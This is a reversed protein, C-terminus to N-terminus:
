PRRYTLVEPDWESEACTALNDRMLDHITPNSVRGWLWGYADAGLDLMAVFVDRKQILTLDPRAGIWKVYGGGHRKTVRDDRAILYGLVVTGADNTVLIVMSDPDLVHRRIVARKPYTLDLWGRTVAIQNCRWAVDMNLAFDVMADEFALATEPTLVTVVAV